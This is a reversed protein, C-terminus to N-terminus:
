TIEELNHLFYFKFHNMELAFYSAKLPFDTVVNKWESSVLKSM